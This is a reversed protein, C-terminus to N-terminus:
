MYSTAVINYPIYRSNFRSNVLTFVAKSRTRSITCFLQVVKSLGKVEGLRVIRMKSIPINITGVGFTRLDNFIGIFIFSKSHHRVYLVYEIFM